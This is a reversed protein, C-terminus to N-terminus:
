EDDGKKAPAVLAGHIPEDSAGLAGVRRQALPDLAAALADAVSPADLVHLAVGAAQLAQAAEIARRRLRDAAGNTAGRADATKSAIPSADRFVVLVERSLLDRSAALDALFAAHDLAAAELAPHPLGVAADRLQAIAPTLDVPEARVVIELPGATGNLYRALAAVMGAREAATRLAFSVGVARCVLAMGDRGLDITGDGRVAEIGLGLSAPLRGASVGIISPAPAVGEPAVVFRRAGILHRLALSVLRDAGLGDRRGLALGLAAVAVPLGIVGFVPLPIHRHLAAWAIWLAVAPAALLALQRATLGALLRDPRDTDAPIRVRVEADDHTTDLRSM